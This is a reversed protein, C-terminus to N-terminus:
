GARHIVSWGTLTKEVSTSGDTATVAWVREGDVEVRVAIAGTAIDQMISGVGATAERWAGLVTTVDEESFGSQAAVASVTNDDFM